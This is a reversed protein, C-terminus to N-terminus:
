IKATQNVDRMPRRLRELDGARCTHTAEDNALDAELRETAVTRFCRTCISDWTKRSENNRHVFQWSGEFPM